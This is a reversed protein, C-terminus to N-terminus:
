GQSRNFSLLVAGNAVSIDSIAGFRVAVPNELFMPITPSMVKNGEARPVEIQKGRTRQKTQLGVAKGGHLVARRDRPTARMLRESVSGFRTGSIMLGKAYWVM